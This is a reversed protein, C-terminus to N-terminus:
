ALQDSVSTGGQSHNCAHDVPLRGPADADAAASSERAQVHIIVLMNSLQEVGRRLVERASARLSGLLQQTLCLSLSRPMRQHQIFGRAAQKQGVVRGARTFHEVLRHLRVRTLRGQPEVKCRCEAAELL